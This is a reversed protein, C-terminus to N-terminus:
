LDPDELQRVKPMTHNIGKRLYVSVGPPPQGSGPEGPKLAARQAPTMTAALDTKLAEIVVSKLRSYHIDLLDDLNNEHIWSLLSKKDFVTPIPTFKPSFTQGEGRWTDQGSLEEVRTLEDLIVRELADYDIARKKKAIEEFEEEEVLAAYDQALTKMPVREARLADAKARVKLERPSVEVPEEPVQGQLNSWKRPKKAM